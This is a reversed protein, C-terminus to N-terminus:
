DGGRAPPAASPPAQLQRREQQGPAPSMLGSHGEAGVCQQRGQMQGRGEWPTKRLVEDQPSKRLGKAGRPHLLSNQGEGSPPVTPGRFEQLAAEWVALVASTEWFQKVHFCEIAREVFTDKRFGCSTDIGFGCLEFTGVPSPPIQTQQPCLNDGPGAESTVQSSLGM